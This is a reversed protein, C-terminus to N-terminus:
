LQLLYIYRFISKNKPFIAFSFINVSYVLSFVYNQQKTMTFTFSFSSDVQALSEAKRVCTYSDCWGCAAYILCPLRKVNLASDQSHKKWTLEIKYLTRMLYPYCKLLDWNDARVSFDYLNWSVNEAFIHSYFFLSYFATLRGRFFLDYYFIYKSCITRSFLRIMFFKMTCLWNFDIFFNLRSFVHSFVQSFDCEFFLINIVFFICTCNHSILHLTFFDFSFM